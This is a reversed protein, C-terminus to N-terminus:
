FLVGGTERVERLYGYLRDQEELIEALIAENEKQKDEM